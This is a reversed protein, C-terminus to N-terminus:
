EMGGLIKMANPDRAVVAAVRAFEGHMRPTASARATAADEISGFYGLHYKRGSVKIHAQWRSNSKNWSVGKVGSTNNGQAGRNRQNEANNAERLNSLRNDARNGNIHDIQDAPWAGYHIAWIARHARCNLGLIRGIKYGDPRETIFAERGAFRSNWTSYSRRCEFWSQDRPLWFLKGSEPDYRLLERMIEPSPQNTM